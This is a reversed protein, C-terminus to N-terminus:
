IGLGGPDSPPQWDGNYWAGSWARITEGNANYASVRYLVLGTDPQGTLAKETAGPVDEIQEWNVGSDVSRYLKYGTADPVANWELTFDAALVPGTVFVISLLAIISILRKM